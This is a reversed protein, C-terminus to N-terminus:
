RLAGKANKFIIQDVIIVQSHKPNRNYDNVVYQREFEIFIEIAVTEITLPETLYM